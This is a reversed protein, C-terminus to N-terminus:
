AAATQFRSSRLGSEVALRAIDSLAIPNAGTGFCILEAEQHEQLGELLDYPTWLVRQSDWCIGVPMGKENAVKETEAIVDLIDQTDTNNTPM